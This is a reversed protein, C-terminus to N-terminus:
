QINQLILAVDATDKCINDLLLIYKNIDIKLENYRQTFENKSNGKWDVDMNNVSNNFGNNIQNVSETCIHIQKSISKLDSVIKANMVNMM